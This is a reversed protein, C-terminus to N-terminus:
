AQEGLNRDCARGVPRTAQEAHRILAALGAATSATLATDRRAGPLRAYGRFKGIQALWIIIWRSHECRLRAAERWREADDGAAAPQHDGPAPAPCDTM